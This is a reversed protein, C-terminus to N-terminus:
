IKSLLSKIRRKARQRIRYGSVSTQNNEQVETSSNPTGLARDLTEKAKAHMYQSKANEFIQKSVQQSLEQIKQTAHALDNYEETPTTEGRDLLKTYASLNLGLATALDGTQATLDALQMLCFAQADHHGLRTAINQAQQFILKAEDHDKNEAHFVGLELIGQLLTYPANTSLLNANKTVFNEVRQATHITEELNGIEAQDQALGLLCFFLNQHVADISKSEQDAQRSAILNEFIEIAELNSRMAVHVDGHERYEYSIYCLIHGLVELYLDPRRESAARYIDALKLIMELQRPAELDNNIIPSASIPSPKEKNTPVIQEINETRPSLHILVSSLSLLLDQQLNESIDANLLLFEITTRVSPLLSSQKLLNRWKLLQTFATPSEKSVRYVLDTLTKSIAAQVQKQADLNPASITEETNEDHDYAHANQICILLTAEVLEQHNHIYNQLHPQIAECEYAVQLLRRLAENKVYNPLKNDIAAELFKGAVAFIDTEDSITQNFVYILLAEGIPKPIDGIGDPHIAPPTFAQHLNSLDFHSPGQIRENLNQTEFYSRSGQTLYLAALLRYLKNDENQLNLNKLELDILSQVNHIPQQHEIIDLPTLDSFNLETSITQPQQGVSKLYENLLLQASQANPHSLRTHEIDIAALPFCNRLLHNWWRTIDEALLLIRIPHENPTDIQEALLSKLDFLSDANDFVILKPQQTSIQSARFHSANAFIPAHWGRSALNFGLEYALRTKGVGKPGTLVRVSLQNPSIAWALLQAYQAGHIEKCYSFYQSSPFLNNPNTGTLNPTSALPKANSSGQQQVEYLIIRAQADVDINSWQVAKCNGYAIIFERPWDMREDVIWHIIPRKENRAILLQQWLQHRQQSPLSVSTPTAIFVLADWNVSYVSQEQGLVPSAGAARFADAATTAITADQKSYCLFIQPGM